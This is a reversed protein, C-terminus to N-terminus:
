DTTLLLIDLRFRQSASHKITSPSTHTPPNFRDFCKHTHTHTHTHTHVPLHYRIGSAFFVSNPTKFQGLSVKCADIDNL